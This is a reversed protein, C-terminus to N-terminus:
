HRQAPPTTQIYMPLIRVLLMVKAFVTLFGRFNQGKEIRFLWGTKLIVLNGTNMRLKEKETLFDGNDGRTMQM